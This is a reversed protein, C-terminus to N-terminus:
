LGTMSRKDPDVVGVKCKRDEQFFVLFHRDGPRYPSFLRKKDRFVYDYAFVFIDTRKGIDTFVAPDTFVKLEVGPGIDPVVHYDAVVGHDMRPYLNIVIGDDTVITRYKGIGYYAPVAKPK